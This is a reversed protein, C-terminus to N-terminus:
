KVQVTSTCYSCMSSISVYMSTQLWNSWYGVKRCLSRNGASLKEGCMFITYSIYLVHMIINTDSKRLMSVIHPLKSKVNIALPKGVCHIM